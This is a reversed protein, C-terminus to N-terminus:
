AQDQREKCWSKAGQMSQEGSIYLYIYPKVANAFYSLLSIDCITLQAYPSVQRMRMAQRVQVRHLLPLAMGVM